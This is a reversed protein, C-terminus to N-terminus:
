VDNDGEKKEYTIVLYNKYDSPDYRDYTIADTHIYESEVILDDPTANPWKKQAAKLISTLSYHCNNVELYMKTDTDDPEFCEVSGNTIYKGM